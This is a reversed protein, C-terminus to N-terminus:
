GFLYSVVVSVSASNATIKIEDDTGDTMADLGAPFTALLVGGSPIRVTPTTGTLWLTLANTGNTVAVYNTIDENEIMIARLKLESPDSSPVSDGATDFPDTSSALSITIGGTTATVRESCWGVAQNTSAGDLITKKYEHSLIDDGSVNDDSRGLGIQLKATIIGRLTDTIAM